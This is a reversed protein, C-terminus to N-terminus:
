TTYPVYGNALPIIQPYLSNAMKIEKGDRDYYREYGEKKDKNKMIIMIILVLILSLLIYEHM